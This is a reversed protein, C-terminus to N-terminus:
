ARPIIAPRRWYLTGLFALVVVEATAAAGAMGAAQWRPVLLLALLVNTVGAMMIARLFARERGFPLAWCLGLVTNVAILLPLASLLRVVPIAAEYGPGLLVRVLLPAGLLATGGMIGGIVGAGALARRIMRDAASPDAAQLYSVRPLFVQTLPQLLNIAARIIREGGGFIAVTAPGALASLILVNAQIYLAGWARTAFISWETRLTQWGVARAPWRMSEHRALWALLVALSLGSFVAQLAVVRWADPPGHVVVFVGFAAASRTVVDVVVAGRLREMGQFFWLPSAGRLVAFAVAWALLAPHERLAPVALFAMCGAPVAALILLAKASHVGHVVDALAGPTNRARAVARTGSLDFGFELFTLLWSGLAQAAIVAGWTTPGLVRALYPITLIPALLGVGQAAFLVSANAVLLRGTNSQSPSVATASAPPKISV